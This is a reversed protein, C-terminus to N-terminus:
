NLSYSDMRFTPCGLPPRWTDRPLDPAFAAMIWTGLM